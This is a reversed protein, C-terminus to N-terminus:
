AADQLFVKYLTIPSGNDSPLAWSVKVSSGDITTTVSTPVEPVHAALLELTASYASFDYQNRAEVKFEYTTGSTLGTATYATSALGDVLVSFAQGKM